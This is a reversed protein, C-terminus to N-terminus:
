SAIGARVGVPMNRFMFCIVLIAGTGTLEVPPVNFAIIYSVGIVTGPIAFSLMTGFEFSGSAPSVGPAGAALRHDPRDRRDAARVGSIQLTTWFSNWASGSWAARVRRPRDRSAPSCLAEATLRTTAASRKVFSGGLV